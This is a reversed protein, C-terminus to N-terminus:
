NWKYVHLENETLLCVMNTSNLKFTCIDLIPKGVHIEQIMKDSGVEQVILKHDSTASGRGFLVLVQGDQKEFLQSRLFSREKYSGGRKNDFVFNTSIQFDPGQVADNSINVRNFEIVIHRQHPQPRTSVLLMRTSKHFHMSWFLANNINIPHPKYLFDGDSNIREEFFRFFTSLIHSIIEINLQVKM